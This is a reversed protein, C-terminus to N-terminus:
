ICCERYELYGRFGLHQPSSGTQKYCICRVKPCLHVRKQPYEKNVKFMVYLEDVTANIICDFRWTHSGGMLSRRDLDFFNEWDFGELQFRDYVVVEQLRG